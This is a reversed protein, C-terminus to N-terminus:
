LMQNLSFHLVRPALTIEQLVWGRQILPGGHAFDDWFNPNSLLFSNGDANLLVGEPLKIRCPTVHTRNRLSFCRGEGNPSKTAAINLTAHQYIDGMVHAEGRWDEDSDQIICVRGVWVIPGTVFGVGAIHPFFWPVPAWQSV